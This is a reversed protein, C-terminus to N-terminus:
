KLIARATVTVSVSQQGAEAVPASMAVGDAAMEMKAASRMMPMPTPMYTNDVNVEIIEFKTKGLAEAALEAKRKIRKLAETMLSDRFVDAQEPSLTYFMNNMVFGMEQIQGALDQIKTQDKSELDITQSAKWIMRAKADRFNAIPQPNPDYSYVYYQGTSVKIEPISKALDAAKKMAENIENQIKKSDKGEKEIRLSIQLIDQKMEKQETASLSIITEGANLTPINQAWVPSVFFLASVFCIIFKMPEESNKYVM